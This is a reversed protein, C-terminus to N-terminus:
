SQRCFDAAAAHIRLLEPVDDPAVSRGMGCETAVGFSSVVQRAAEIRRKTGEIGDKLHVLGLFLETEPHLALGALPAFYAADSRDIPVPLHIWGISRKVAASILNALQVAKGTTEPEIFHKADLDGYCLHFGLEVDQPVAAGLRAFRRRLQEDLDPWPSPGLRGDYMVMERCVDWQLALDRHPVAECILALEALMAKEYAAEFAAQSDRAVYLVLAYPTPLSVQFRCNSPLRGADRVRVFETYSLRAERAYGLQGFRLDSAKFGSRLRVPPYQPGPESPAKELYYNSRLVPYQYSIWLRRPGPEGDPVRQIYRGLIAGVTEFVEQSSDLNVSGNLHVHAARQTSM